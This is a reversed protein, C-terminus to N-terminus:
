LKTSERGNYIYMYHCKGPLYKSRRKVRNFYRFIEDRGPTFKDDVKIRFTSQNTLGTEIPVKLSAYKEHYPNSIITQYFDQILKADFPIRQIEFLYQFLKYLGYELTFKYLIHYNKSNILDWFEKTRNYHQLMDLTDQYEPDYKHYDLLIDPLPNPISM